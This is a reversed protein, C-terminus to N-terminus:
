NNFYKKLILKDDFPHKVGNIEQYKEHGKGAILIIDGQRSLICATKIAEERDPIVLVNKMFKEDIGKKMDELILLPDETRPNDSTLILKDSLSCAIKAMIPRKSKDRDGGAGVISIIEQNTKKLNIITELVNKLADPTHAYDIIATKNNNNKVHYFRGEVAKLTSLTKLVEIEDEGLLIATAYVALLNYANFKGVLRVWVDNNNINLQLGEIQNEIIKCKFDAIQKLSYFYKSAKTNQLIVEGNKDDINSLAFASSPLNDFFKKKAKLYNKFDKHYDLHEHTINSFIGATFKIGAIRNQVIAHSSVEMFCYQCGQTLMKKLLSNIEISDPTTRTSKIKKNEIKNEITSLLGVKYGLDTFLDHLLNVTTTKGNTGTIGIVKIQSSPNDYFNSAIIGLAFSSDRVLIYTINEIIMEPLVNCVIATAGANICQEVYNHGDTKTGKVAVFLCDPKAKRSDFCISDIEINTSGIIELAKLNKIIYKLLKM